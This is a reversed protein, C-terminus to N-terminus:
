DAALKAAGAAAEGEASPVIDVGIIRRRISQWVMNRAGGGATVIKTPFPGGRAEIERYALAEVQAVGELLGKLFQADDHPRPTLRPELHPDNIPFREGPSLLPYYDLGSPTDPDISVSLRELEAGSFYHALVGGGTNSAGGALWAGGIRHSYLGIEPDDIRVESMLKVALTTGLSTVAVGPVPDAAALFAAISDTTGRRVMAERSLGLEDALGPRIPGLDSGPAGVNPLVSVPFGIQDLWDPWTASGPDYGTKLANNDDSEGGRGTLKAAVYDAQHLLHRASGGTDEGVLRMARALASSSGRAIHVPPAARAIRAAELEFGKSNYMLARTVPELQADTLVMTGSTGDVAIGTIELPDRGDARLSDVQTRICTEVAEWWLAADIWDPDQPLHDTRAMSLVAGDRDRVATRVGSTGVDIGLALTM